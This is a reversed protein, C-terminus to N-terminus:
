ETGEPKLEAHFPSKRLRKDFQFDTTWNRRISHIGWGLPFFISIPIILMVGLCRSGRGYRSRQPSSSDKTMDEVEVSGSKRFHCDEGARLIRKAMVESVKFRM